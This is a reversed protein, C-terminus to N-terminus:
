KIGYEMKKAELAKSFLDEWTATIGCKFKKMLNKLCEIGVPTFKGRKTVIDTPKKINSDKNAFYALERIIRMRTVPREDPRIDNFAAQFKRGANVADCVKSNLIQPIAVM